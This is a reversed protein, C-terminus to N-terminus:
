PAIDVAISVTGCLFACCHFCRVQMLCTLGLFTRYSHHELDVAIEPCVILEDIMQQLGQFNDVLVCECVALPVPLQPAPPPGRLLVGGRISEVNFALLEREYPHPFYYSPGILTDTETLSHAGRSTNTHTVPKLSLDLPVVSHYKEKLKPRFPHDRENDIDVLFKLQPKEMNVSNCTSASGNLLRHKDAVLSTRLSNRVSDMAADASELLMDITDVVQDYVISDSLDQPLEFSGGNKRHATAFQVVKSIVEVISASTAGALDAFEQFSKFYTHDTGFPLMNTSKSLQAVASMFLRIFDDMKEKDKAIDAVTKAEEAM